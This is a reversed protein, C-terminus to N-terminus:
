VEPKHNSVRRNEVAKLLSQKGRIKRALHRSSTKWWRSYKGKNMTWCSGKQQRGRHPALALVTEHIRVPDTIWPYSDMDTNFHGREMYLRGMIGSGLLSLERNRWQHWGLGQGQGTMLTAPLCCINAPHSTIPIFKYKNKMITCYISSRQLFILFTLYAFHFGVKGIIGAM